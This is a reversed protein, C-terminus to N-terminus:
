SNHFNSQKGCFCIQIKRIMLKSSLDFNSPFNRPTMVDSSGCIVGIAGKNCFFYAQQESDGEM